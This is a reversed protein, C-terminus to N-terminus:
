SQQEKLAAQAILSAEVANANLLCVDDHWYNSINIELPEIADIAELADRLRKNEAELRDIDALLAPVAERSLAIFAASDDDHVNCIARGMPGVVPLGVISSRSAANLWPGETAKKEAERLEAWKDTM